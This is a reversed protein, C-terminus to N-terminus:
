EGSTKQNKLWLDIQEGLFHFVFGITGIIGEEIQQASKVGVKLDLFKDCIDLAIKVWKWAWAACKDRPLLKALIACGLSVAAPIALSLILATVWTPM